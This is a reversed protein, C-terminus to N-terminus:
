GKKCAPITFEPRTPYPMGWTGSPVFLGPYSPKIYDFGYIIPLLMFMTALGLKM